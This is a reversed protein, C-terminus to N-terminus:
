IWGAVVVGLALPLYILTSFFLGRAASRDLKKRWQVARFLMYGGLVVGIAAAWTAGFGFIPPLLFWLGLVASTAVSLSAMRAGSVDRNAWMAFGAEEYQERYMWNIAFFHPLQWFFLVGFLFLAEIGWVGGGGFWGILPPLAGAVAGVITNWGTTRKMPTYIFVYVALTAGALFAAAANVTVGLHVIGLAGLLWGIGFAAERSMKRAPLPRGATRAMQADVDIEMLQNFVAAAAAALASGIVTHLMVMWPFAGLSRSAAMFGILTTIVVLLSLRAKTLAMWDARSLRNSKSSLDSAQVETVFSSNM